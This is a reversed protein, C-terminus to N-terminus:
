RRVADPESEEAFVIAHGARKLHDAIRQAPTPWWWRRSGGVVVISGHPLMWRSVESYRGCLCLRVSVDLGTQGAMQRYDEVAEIDESPDEASTRAGIRPVLLVTRVVNLRRALQRAETLAARAGEETTAIIQLQVPSRQTDV